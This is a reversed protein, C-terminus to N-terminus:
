AADDYQADFRILNHFQTTIPVFSISQNEFQMLQYKLILM